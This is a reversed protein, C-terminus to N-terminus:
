WEIEQFFNDIIAPFQAFINCSGPEPFNVLVKVLVQALLEVQTMRRRNPITQSLGDAEM